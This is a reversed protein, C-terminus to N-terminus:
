LLRSNCSEIDLLVRKTALGGAGSYGGFRGGAALVRHCPILIPLPNAGCAGGVARPSGGAVRALDGYTRTEGYPIDTMARWLRRRFDTGEPHMPLDFQRLKGAFYADLQRVAEGLLPSRGTEPRASWDLSVLAGDTEELYLRGVPSAFSIVTM